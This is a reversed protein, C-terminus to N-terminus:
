FTLGMIKENSKTSFKGAQKAEYDAMTNGIIGQHAPIWVIDVTNDNIYLDYLLNYIKLINYNSRLIDKNILADTFSNSDTCILNFKTNNNKIYELCKLLAYAEASFISNEPEM